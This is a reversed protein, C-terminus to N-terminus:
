PISLKKFGHDNAISLYRLDVHVVHEEFCLGREADFETCLISRDHSRGHYAYCLYKIWKGKTNM